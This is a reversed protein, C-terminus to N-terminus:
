KQIPLAMPVYRIGADALEHDLAIFGQKEYFAAANVSGQLHM